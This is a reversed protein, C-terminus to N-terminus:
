RGPEGGLARKRPVPDRAGDAARRVISGSIPGGPMTTTAVPVPNGGLVSTWRVQLWPMVGVMGLTTVSALPRNVAWTSTNWLSTTPGRVSVAVPDPPVGGVAEISTVRGDTPGGPKEIM